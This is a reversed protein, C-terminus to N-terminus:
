KKAAIHVIGRVDHARLTEAVLGADFVSGVVVPTGPIRDPDGSSLDDLVVVSEGAERMVSVVHSGIYGAGGTM